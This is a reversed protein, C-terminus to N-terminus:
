RAVVIPGFAAAGDSGAVRGYYLGPPLTEMDIDAGWAGGLVGGSASSGVPTCAVEMVVQGLTNFLTITSGDHLLLGNDPFAVRTSGHTPNPAITIGALVRAGRGSSISAPKFSFRSVMVSTAGGGSQVYPGTTTPYDTSATAGAIYIDRDADVAIAHAFDNRGGGIYTAYNVTFAVSDLLAFFGDIDTTDPHAIDHAGSTVPFNVSNTIGCVVLTGARNMGLDYAVDEGGGGIVVSRVLEGDVPDIRTVFADPKKENQNATDYPRHVPFNASRTEGCIVAHGTPDVAVANAVDFRYGGLYTSFHLSQGDNALLAVFADQEHGNGPSLNRRRSANATLPFETSWTGGALYARGNKDVAIDNIQDSQEGGIYTSYLLHSGDASLKAIFADAFIDGRIATDFAPRLTPYNASYTSGGVYANGVSDIALAFAEDSKTGGIFTSYLLRAGDASLKTVFVDPTGPSSHTTDLAGRTAPFNWSETSGALYVNGATDLELANAVDNMAGGIFTSYVIAGDESNLKTVFLDSYASDGTFKESYGGTRVPFRPSFTWGTLFINKRGDTKMDYAADHVGGGLVTSYILPDIVLPRTRDYSGLEFAVSGDGRTTFSCPVTRRVEGDMQYAYPKRQRLQGLSTALVLDGSEEVAVGGVGHYRVQVAAPDAGPALLLDYRIEGDEIRLLADVGPYLREIRAEEYLAVHTAWRAPDSGVFYNNYGRRSLLGRAAASASAGVFEMRVVTGVRELGSAAAAPSGAAPAVRFLDYLLEGNKVWLNYGKGQVLMAVDGPWQGRNEIFSPPAQSPVSADAIRPQAIANPASFAATFAALLIIALPRTISNM